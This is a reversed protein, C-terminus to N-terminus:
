AALPPAMEQVPAPGAMRFTTRLTAHRRVVGALASELAAVDLDGSLRLAAALNYAPSERDLEWLFWLREQAFSLPPLGDGPEPESPPRRDRAEALASEQLRRLLLRRKSASLGTLRRTAETM